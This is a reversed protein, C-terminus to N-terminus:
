LHDVGPSDRHDVVSNDFVSPSPRVCAPRMWAGARSRRLFPTAPRFSLPTRRGTSAPLTTDWTQAPWRLWLAEVPDDVNFAVAEVDDLRGLAVMLNRGIFDEGGSIVVRRM